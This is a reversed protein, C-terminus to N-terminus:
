VLTRWPNEQAETPATIPEAQPALTVPTESSTAAHPGPIIQDAYPRPADAAPATAHDHYWGERNEQPVPPPPTPAAAIPTTTTGGDWCRAWHTGAASRCTGCCYRWGQVLVYDALPRTCGPSLCTPRPGPRIHLFVTAGDRPPPPALREDTQGMGSPHPTEATWCRDDHGGHGARCTACCHDWGHELCRNDLARPCGITRCTPRPRPGGLWEGRRGEGPPPRTGREAAILLGSLGRTVFQRAADDSAGALVRDCRWPAWQYGSSPETRVYEPVAPPGDPSANRTTIREKWREIAMALVHPSHASPDLRTDNREALLELWLVHFIGYPTVGLRQLAKFQDIPSCEAPPFYRTPCATAYHDWKGCHWCPESRGDRPYPPPPPPPPLGLGDVAGPANGDLFPGPTAASTNAAAM